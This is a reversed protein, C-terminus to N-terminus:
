AISSMRGDSFGCWTSNPRPMCSHPRKKKEIKELKGISKEGICKFPDSIIQIPIRKGKQKLSLEKEEDKLGSKKPTPEDLEKSTLKFNPCSKQRLLSGLDSEELPQNLGLHSMQTVIEEPDKYRKEQIICDNICQTSVYSETTEYEVSKKQPEIRKKIASKRKSPKQQRKKFKSKSRPLEDEKKPSLFLSRADAKCQMVYEIQTDEEIPEKLGHNVSRNCLLSGTSDCLTIDIAVRQKTPTPCEVTVPTVTEAELELKQLLFEMASQRFDGQCSLQDHDFNSMRSVPRRLLLPAHTFSHSYTDYVEHMLLHDPTSSRSHSSTSPVSVDASTTNTKDPHSIYKEGTVKMTATNPKHSATKPRQKTVRINRSHDTKCTKPRKFNNKLRRKNYENVHHPVNSSEAWWCQETISTIPPNVHMKTYTFVPIRNATSQM